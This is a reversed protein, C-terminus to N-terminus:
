KSVIRPVDKSTTRDLCSIRTVVHLPMAVPFVGRYYRWLPVVTFFLFLLICLPSMGSSTLTLLRQGGVSVNTVNNM